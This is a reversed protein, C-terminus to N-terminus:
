FASKQRLSVQNDMSSTKDVLSTSYKTIYFGLDHWYSIRNKTELRDNGHRNNNCLPITLQM